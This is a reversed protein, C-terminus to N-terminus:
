VVAGSGDDGGTAAEAQAALEADSIPEDDRREIIARAAGLDKRRVLLQTGESYRLAPGGDGSLPSVGVLVVQIGSARLEGAVLDAMTAPLRTLEVPDDDPPM